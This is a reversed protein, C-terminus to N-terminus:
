AFRVISKYDVKDKVYPCDNPLVRKEIADKIRLCKPNVKFRDRYVRCKRTVIDLHECAMSVAVVGDPYRIKRQCCRGCKLCKSM